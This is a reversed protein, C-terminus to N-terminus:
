PMETASKYQYKFNVGLEFGQSRVIECIKNWINKTNSLDEYKPAANLNDSIFKIDKSTLKVRPFGVNTSDFPKCPVFSFMGDFPNSVSAGKYCVYDTPMWKTFGMIDVYDSPVYGSLDTHSTKTNYCKYDGVVFVTDLVFYPGGQKKSITSGFLIISGKELTGIKTFITIVSKNINKRQKCNSYIFYDGFVFPDTNQRTHTKRKKIIYPPLILGGVGKSLFPEHIFDPQVGTGTTSCVKSFNSTPEWEGWFLLEKPSTLSGDKTVCQGFAKLFKRKHGGYNWEKIGTKKEQSGISHEAGPHAFQVIYVKRTM